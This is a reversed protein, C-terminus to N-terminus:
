KEDNERLKKLVELALTLHREADKLRDKRIEHNTGKKKDPHDARKVDDAYLINQLAQATESIVDQSGLEEARTIAEKYPSGETAGKYLERQGALAQLVNEVTARGGKSFRYNHLDLTTIEPSTKTTKEHHGPTREPM